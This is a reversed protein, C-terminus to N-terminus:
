GHKKMQRIKMSEKLSNCHWNITMVMHCNAIQTLLYASPDDLQLAIEFHEIAENFRGISKLLKGKEVYAGTFHDEGIIAFDFASLAEEAPQPSPITKWKM